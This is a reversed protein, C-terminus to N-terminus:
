FLLNILTTFYDRIKISQDKIEQPKDQKLTKKIFNTKDISRYVM